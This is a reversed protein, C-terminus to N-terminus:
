AVKDTELQQFLPALEPRVRLPECFRTALKVLEVEIREARASLDVLRAQAGGRDADILQEHKALASRLETIQYELDTVTREKETLRAQASRESARAVLWAEVTEACARYAQALQPSPEQFGSRGEWTVAERMAGEYQKALRRCEATLPTLADRAARMDDKARSSDHGLADVAFGFRQRGDRGRVDIDELKRQEQESAERVEAAKSVCTDLEDLVQALDMSRLRGDPLSDARRLM